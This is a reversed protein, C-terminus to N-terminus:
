IKKSLFIASKCFNHVIKSWIGHFMASKSDNDTAIHIHSEEDAKFKEIKSLIPNDPDHKKLYDIQEQYHEVIIEEIKETVLMSTKNGMLASIAGIGYGFINWLPMLITPRALGNEIQKEFYKLHELEQNLMHKIIKKDEITRSFRLQAQYIRQAGYEGAHDVMIIKEIEKNKDHFYPRPM